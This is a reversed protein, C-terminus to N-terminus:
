REPVLDVSYIQKGARDHLSVTLAESEPAIVGRGFFQLGESPPRNPKMDPGVARFRAEPGFTPDLAGNFFTGAHLPGAIFEWFPRFDHVTARDPHFHHAAAYHVDATVFVINRVGQASASQLVEAIELERGLPPGADGNAVGEFTGPKDDIVLGLPQDCAILKWTAPSAALAAKLWEAQAAGLIRAPADLATQRNASNAGRYSRLDLIFVDLSPGYSLKRYIRRPDAAALRLPAYELFARKARSALLSVDKVKYRADDAIEGPYWNNMVEHDDWQMAWPVEAQFARLHDDILNYRFNGRFEELTEAVKSKSPTVINRWTSGDDLKVEALLPNDAYIADGSHIFVDPEARRLADFIAYGGREKDIGWGQGAVDGGWAFSVGGKTAPATRFRGALPESRVRADAMSEFVVRYFIRQGPPLATLDVRATYDTAATAAPGAVRRADTFSETTAYEVVMRATRDAQGWVIARAGDVDGSAVAIANPRAPNRRVIAPAPGDLLAGASAASIRELFARRDIGRPGSV